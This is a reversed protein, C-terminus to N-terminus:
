HSGHAAALAQGLSNGRIGVTEVLLLHRRKEPLDLSDPGSRRGEFLAEDVGVTIFLM